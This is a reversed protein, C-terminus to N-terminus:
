NNERKNMLKKIIQQSGPDSKQHFQPAQKKSFLPGHAIQTAEPLAVPWAGVHKQDGKPEMKATKSRKPAENQTEQSRKPHWTPGLHDLIAFFTSQKFKVQPQPVWTPVGFRSFDIDFVMNKESANKVDIKLPNSRRKPINKNIPKESGFHMRFALIHNKHLMLLVSRPRM